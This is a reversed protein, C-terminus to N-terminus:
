GYLNGESNHGIRFLQTLDPWERDPSTAWIVLSIIAVILIVNVVTMVIGVILGTMALARGTRADAPVAAHQRIRRLGIASLVIGAIANLLLPFVVSSLSLIFGIVAPPNLPAVRQAAQAPPPATVLSQPTPTMGSM